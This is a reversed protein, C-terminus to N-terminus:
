SGLTFRVKSGFRQLPRPIFVEKYVWWVRFISLPNLLGVAFMLLMVNSTNRQNECFDINFPPMLVNLINGLNMIMTTTNREVFITM